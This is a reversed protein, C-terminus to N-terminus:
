IHTHTHAHAHKPPTPPPPQKTMSLMPRINYLGQGEKCQSVACDLGLARGAGGGRRTAGLGLWTLSSKVGGGVWGRRTGSGGRAERWTVTGM